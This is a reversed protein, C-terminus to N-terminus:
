TLPPKRAGECWSGSALSGGWPRQLFLFFVRTPSVWPWPESAQVATAAGGPDGLFLLFLFLFCVPSM